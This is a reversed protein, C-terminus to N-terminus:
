DTGHKVATAAEPTMEPIRSAKGPLAQWLGTGALWVRRPEVRM